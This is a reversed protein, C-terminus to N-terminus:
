SDEKLSLDCALLDFSYDRNLLIGAIPNLTTVSIKLGLVNQLTEIVM